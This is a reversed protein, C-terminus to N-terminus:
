MQIAVVLLLWFLDNGSSVLRNTKGTLMSEAVMLYHPVAHMFNFHPKVALSPLAVACPM